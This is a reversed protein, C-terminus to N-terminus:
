GDSAKASANVHHTSYGAICHAYAAVLCFLFVRVEDLRFELALCTVVSITSIGILRQQDENFAQLGTKLSQVVHDQSQVSPSPTIQTSWSGEYPEKSTASIYNLLSYMNSMIFDDGPALKICLALCKAAAALPLPARIEAAFEYEFIPLPSTVFRRLHGSM